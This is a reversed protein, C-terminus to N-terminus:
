LLHEIFLQPTVLWIDLTLGTAGPAGSKHSWITARVVRRGAAGLAQGEEETELLVFCARKGKGERGDQGARAAHLAAFTPNPSTEEEGQVSRGPQFFYRTLAVGLRM